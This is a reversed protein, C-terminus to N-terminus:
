AKQNLRPAIKRGTNPEAPTTPKEVTRLVSNNNKNAHPNIEWVNEKVGEMELVEAITLYSGAVKPNPIQKGSKDTIIPSDNEDLDTNYKENFSTLFGKKEVNSAGAKWKITKGFTDNVVYDKKVSKIKGELEQEKQTWQVVAAERTNKEELWKTKYKDAEAQLAQVKADSGGGNAKLAEIETNKATRIVSLVESLTEQFPKKKDIEHEVGFEKMERKLATEFTGLMGGIVKQKKEESIPADVPAYRTAFEAVFDEEKDFTKDNLKLAALIQENTLPM